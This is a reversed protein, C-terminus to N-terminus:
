AKQPSAAHRFRDICEPLREPRLTVLLVATREDRPLCGGAAGRAEAIQQLRHAVTRGSMLRRWALHRWRARELPADLLATLASLPDATGAAGPLRLEPLDPDGGDLRAVLSGSAAARVLGLTSRWAGALPDATFVEAGQLRMMALKEEADLCGITCDRFEGS